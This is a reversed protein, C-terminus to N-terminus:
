LILMDVNVFLSWESILKDIIDVGNNIGQLVIMVQTDRSLLSLVM